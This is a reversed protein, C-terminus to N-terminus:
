KFHCPGSAAHGYEPNYWFRGVIRGGVKAVRPGGAVSGIGRVVFEVVANESLRIAIPFSGYGWPNLIWRLGLYPYLPRNNELIAWEIGPTEIQNCDCAFLDHVARHIRAGRLAPACNSVRWCWVGDPSRRTPSAPNTSISRIWLSAAARVSRRMRRTTSYSAQPACPRIVETHERDAHRTHRSGQLGSALRAARRQIDSVETIEMRIVARQGFEIPVAFYRFPRGGDSAGLGAINLIPESQFERGSGEDFLAYKFAIREPPPAVAQFLAAFRQVALLRDAQGLLISEAFEPNLRIGNALVAATRPGFRGALGAEGLAQSLAELIPGLPSVAFRPLPPPAPAGPRPVPERAFTVPEVTPIAGYGVSVATFIAEISVTVTQNHVREPEGALQYRFAYDFPVTRQSVPRQPVPGAPAAPPAERRRGVLRPPAAMTM